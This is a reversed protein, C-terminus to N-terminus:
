ETRVLADAAYAGSHNVFLPNIDLEAIDPRQEILSSINLLVDVVANKDAPEKGRVGELIAKSTLEEIMEVADNRELPVARFTVDHLIEVFIGGLGFMVVPGFEPDRNVGAIMEQGELREEVLVGELEADPAHQNVNETIRHYRRRVEEDDHATMVADIDTKHQIASSDAKLVVPFGIERAADVAGAEDQVLRHEAVPIDADQFLQMAEHESLTEM